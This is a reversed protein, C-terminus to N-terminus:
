KRWILLWLTTLLGGWLLVSASAALLFGRFARLEDNENECRTIRQPRVPLVYLNEGPQGIRFAHRM